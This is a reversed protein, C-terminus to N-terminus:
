YAKFEIKKSGNPTIIELEYEYQAAEYFWEGTAKWNLGPFPFYIYGHVSNGPFVTYKKLIGVNTCGSFINDVAIGSIPGRIIDNALYHAYQEPSLNGGLFSRERDLAKKHLVATHQIQRGIVEESTTVADENKIIRQINQPLVASIDRYSSKQGQMSLKINTNPNFNYPMGSLNKYLLWMRIYKASDVITPELLYMYLASDTFLIGIPLSNGTGYVCYADDSAQPFFLNLSPKMADPREALVEVGETRVPQPRLEIDYYLSDVDKIQLSIMQREYGIRSIVLEYDGSLIDTLAFKGNNGALTGFPTNALFVVVNDLPYGTEADSVRGTISM